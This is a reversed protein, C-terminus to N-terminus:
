FQFPFCLSGVLLDLSSSREKPDKKISGITIFIFHWFKFQVLIVKEVYCVFGLYKYSVPYLMVYVRCSLPHM